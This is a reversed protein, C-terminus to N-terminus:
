KTVKKLFYNMAPASVLSTLLAMIVLAVFMDEKILKERLAITGLIIEMAGRANLGFGIAISEHKNFGSLRAGLAAGLLKTSFALILVWFILQPNIFNIFDIKLGISVFFLPAMVATIFQHLIDRSQQTLYNSDGCAIGMVFAGLLAHLGMAETFAAGLLCVGVLFSVASGPMSMNRGIWSLRHDLVKRGLTFMGVIFLVVWLASLFMSSTDKGGAVLLLFSFMFWGAIDNLVAASVITQGVSGNLMKLDMLIRVIVPLASISLAIGFFLNEFLNTQELGMWLPFTKIFLVGLAFPVLLSGIAAPWTSQTQKIFANFRVEMGAVFLLLIVSLQVFADLAISMSGAAPFLIEHFAPFFKGAIAPGLLIGAIIEGAVAPFGIRKAIEAFLRAILLLLSFAILMSLLDQQKFAM